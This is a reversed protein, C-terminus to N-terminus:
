IFYKFYYIFPFENFKILQANIVNSGFLYYFLIGETEGLAEM